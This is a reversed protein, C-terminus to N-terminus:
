PKRSPEAPLSDPQLAPSAPSMPKIGPDPLNQPPTFGSWYEKKFFGMSLPAQCAIAWLTACVFVCYM